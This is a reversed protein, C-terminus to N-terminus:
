LQQKIRRYQDLHLLYSVEYGGEYGDASVIGPVCLGGIASSVLGGTVMERPVHVYVHRVDIGVLDTTQYDGPFVEDGVIGFVQAGEVGLNAGLYGSWGRVRCCGGAFREGKDILHLPYKGVAPLHGLIEGDSLLDQANVVGDVFEAPGERSM